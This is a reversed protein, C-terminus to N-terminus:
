STSSHKSRPTDPKMGLLRWRRRQGHETTMDDDDYPWPMYFVMSLEVLGAFPELHGGEITWVRKAEAQVQGQWAKRREFAQTPEGRKTYVQWPEPNGKVEYRISGCLCRGRRIKENNDGM